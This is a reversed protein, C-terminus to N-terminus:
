REEDGSVSQVRKKGKSIDLPNWFNIYRELVQVDQKTAFNSLQANLRVIENKLDTIQSNFDKTKTNLESLGSTASKHKDVLNNEILDIQDRLDRMRDEILGVRRNLKAIEGLVNGSAEQSVKQPMQFPKPEM